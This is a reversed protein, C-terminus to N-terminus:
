GSALSLLVSWTRPGVIGDVELHYQEQMRRVASDTRYGFQGDVFDGNGREWSTLPFYRLLNEQIERVCNGSSGMAFKGAPVWMGNPAQTQGVQSLCANLYSAASATPASVLLAGTAAAAVTLAAVGKTIRAGPRKPM